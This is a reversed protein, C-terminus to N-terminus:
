IGVGSWVRENIEALTLEDDSTLNDYNIIERYWDTCGGCIPLDGCALELHQERWDQYQEGTWVARISTAAADGMVVQGDYMPDCTVMRGDYLIVCSKWLKLCPKRAAPVDYTGHALDQTGGWTNWALGLVFDPERLIGKWHDPFADGEHANEAMRRYSVSTIPFEQGREYKIRFYEHANEIIRQPSGGPRLQGLLDPDLSDLSIEFRQLGSDLIREITETTLLLGNSSMGFYPLGVDAAYDIMDFIQPHMLPEGMFHFWTRTRHLAIEDVLRCFVDFDMFGRHRTLDRHPCGLCVLNCFSSTEIAVILPFDRHLEHDHGEVNLYIREDTQDILRGGTADLLREISDGSRLPGSGVPAPRGNAEPARILM